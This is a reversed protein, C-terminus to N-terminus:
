CVYKVPEDPKELLVRDNVVFIEIQCKSLSGSCGMSSRVEAGFGNQLIFSGTPWLFLFTDGGGTNEALGPKKVIKYTVAEGLLWQCASMASIEGKQYTRAWSSQVSFVLIVTALFIRM